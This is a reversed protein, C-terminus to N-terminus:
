MAVVLAEGGFALVLKLLHHFAASGVEAEVELKTLHALAVDVLQAAVLLLAEVRHLAKVCTDNYAQLVKPILQRIPLTAVGHVLHHLPSCLVDSKVLGQRIRAVLVALLKAGVGM